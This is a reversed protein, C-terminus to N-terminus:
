NKIEDVNLIGFVHRKTYKIHNLSLSHFPPFIAPGLRYIPLYISNM